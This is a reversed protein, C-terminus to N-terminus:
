RLKGWDEEDLTKELGYDPTWRLAGDQVTSFITINRQRFESATQPDITGTAIAWQPQVAEIVEGRLADGSWWLITSRPLRNAAALQDQQDLELRGLWLWSQSQFQFQWITPSLSLPRAVMSGVQASQGITLTQYTGHQNVLGIITQDTQRNLPNDPLAPLDYFAQTPFQRLLVPWGQRFRAATLTAIAGDLHNIGQKQLFPLITLSATREDGSNIVTVKGQDQVVAIPTSSAFLVTAQVLASQAQWLPVIVLTTSVLLAVFIVPLTWRSLAPANSSQAQAKARATPASQIPIPQNATGTTATASGNAAALGSQDALRQKILSFLWVLGFVTYLAMLQSTSLTGVAIASGPLQQCYEVLQILWHNPYYLLWAVGSGAWPWILAVLASVMGGLSIISILPTALVNAPISYPSVLGFTYLQLPLTWLYAALPVALASAIAPPLWDLAAMIPPATVLLGLTALFSFEFGLDWIWIPNILLLITAALILSELSKTQRRTLLAFLAGFGMIAARLISPQVGTLGVLGLLALVGANFQVRTAFRQTLALVVGLVLSVQFGSAALAHSLGIRAFQDRLEFPLDIARGGLVMASLLPGEPSGLGRVQARLIRQRLTWWGWPSQQITVQRASLGAFGGEQALYARFDFGGPNLAPKPRYLSGVLQVRQGPRLGTGQLLPVTVYLKGTVEQGANPPRDGGVIERYRRAELWFQVKQSRTLRPTSAINGDVVVVQQPTDGSPDYVFRSIDAEGPQPLRWQFYFTAAFGVLGAAVWVWWRPGTRWWRPVLIAAIAALGLLVVGGLPLGYVRAAVATTLLGVIYSLCLIIGGVAGM